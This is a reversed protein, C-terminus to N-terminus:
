KVWIRSRRRVGYGFADFCYTGDYLGAAVISAGGTTGTGFPVSNSDANAMTGSTWAGAEAQGVQLAYDLCAPNARMADPNQPEFTCAPNIYKNADPASPYAAGDVEWKYAMTVLANIDANSLKRISGGEFKDHAEWPTQTNFGTKTEAGIAVGPIVVGLANAGYPRTLQERCHENGKALLVLTWGGGSEHMDCQVFTESGAYHRRRRHYTIVIITRM